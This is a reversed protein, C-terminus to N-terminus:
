GAHATMLMETARHLTTADLKCKTTLVLITTAAPIIADAALEHMGPVNQLFGVGLRCAARDLRTGHLNVVPMACQM